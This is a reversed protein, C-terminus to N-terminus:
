DVRCGAGSPLPVSPTYIIYHFTGAVVTPGLSCVCQPPHSIGGSFADGPEGWRWGGGGTAGRGGRQRDDPQRGQTARRGYCTRVTRNVAALLRDDSITPLLLRDDNSISLLLRDDKNTLLVLRDDNSTLLLLRDDNSTLLLLRDDSSTLLLLMDDNSTLLLLRDDSSTLLLLMDDNSTLLLLM